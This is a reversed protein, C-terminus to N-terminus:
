RTTVSLKEAKEREWYDLTSPAVGFEEDVEIGQLSLKAAILAYHHLTHSQLFELERLVSTRCWANEEEVFNGPELHSLIECDGIEEPLAQLQLCILRFREIAHDRDTETLPDRERRNYDIRGEELGDLFRCVFDLIHRFHTGVTGRDTERSFTYESDSLDEILEIGQEIVLVHREVLHNISRKEM